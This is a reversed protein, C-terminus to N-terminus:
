GYERHEVIKGGVVRFIHCFDFTFRETSSSATAEYHNETVVLDDVAIAMRCESRRGPLMVLTEAMLTRIEDRGRVDIGRTMHRLRADAAYM